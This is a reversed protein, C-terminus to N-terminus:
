LNYYRKRGSRWEGAYALISPNTSLFRGNQHGSEARLRWRVLTEPIWRCSLLCIVKGAPQCCCPCSHCVVRIRITCLWLAVRLWLCRFETPVRAPIQKAGLVGQIAGLVRSYSSSLLLSLSSLALSKVLPCLFSTIPLYCSCFACLPLPFRAVPLLLLLHLSTLPLWFTLVVLAPSLSSCLPLSLVCAISRLSAVPSLSFPHCLPPSPLSLPLPSLTPSSSLSRTRSLPPSPSLTHSPPSLSPSLRPSNTLFLSYFSMCPALSPSRTLSIPLSFFVSDAFPHSLPSPQV